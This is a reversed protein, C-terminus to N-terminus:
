NNNPINIELMGGGCNPANSDGTIHELPVPTYSIAHLLLQKTSEKENGRIGVHVTLAGPSKVRSCPLVYADLAQSILTFLLSSHCACRSLPTGAIAM